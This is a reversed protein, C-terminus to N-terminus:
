HMSITKNYHLAETLCEAYSMLEHRGAAADAPRRPRPMLLRARTLSGELYKRESAVICVGIGAQKTRM